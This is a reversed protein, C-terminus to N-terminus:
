MDRAISVAATDEDGFGIPLVDLYDCFVMGKKAPVDCGFVREGNFFFKVDHLELGMRECYLEFVRGLHISPDV